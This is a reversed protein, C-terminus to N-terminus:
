LDGLVRSRQASHEEHSISGSALLEDILQLRDATTDSQSASARNEVVATRPAMSPLGTFAQTAARLELSTHTKVEFIFSGGPANIVFYSLREQKQVALALVGLTLARAVTVRRRVDASGEIELSSVESWSLRAREVGRQQAVVGSDTLTLDVDDTPAPWQPHGGLFKTKELALHLRGAVPSFAQRARAKRSRSFAVAVSGVGAVLVILLVFSPLSSSSSAAAFM